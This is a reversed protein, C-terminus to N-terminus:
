WHRCSPSRWRKVGIVIWLSWAATRVRPAIDPLAAELGELFVGAQDVLLLHFKARQAPQEFQPQGLV